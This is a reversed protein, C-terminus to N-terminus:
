IKNNLSKKKWMIAFIEIVFGIFIVIPALTIRRFNYIEPNFIKPDEAKGGSLLFYGIVIVLFGATLLIYNIKGLVFEEKIENGTSPKLNNQKKEIAM